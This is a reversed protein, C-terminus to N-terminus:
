VADEPHPGQIQCRIIHRLSVFLEMVTLLYFHM